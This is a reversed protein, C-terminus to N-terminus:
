HRAFEQAPGLVLADYLDVAFPRLAGRRAHPEIWEAIAAFFATQPRAASPAAGSAAVDTEAASCSDRWSPITPSGACTTPLM